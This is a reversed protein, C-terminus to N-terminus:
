ACGCSGGCSHSLQLMRAGAPPSAASPTLFRPPDALFAKKCGAACFYYTTGGHEGIHQATEPDVSMHCVPDIASATAGNASSHDDHSVDHPQDQPNM